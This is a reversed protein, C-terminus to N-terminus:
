PDIAGRYAAIAAAFGAAVKEAARVAPDADDPDFRDCAQAAVHRFKRTRDVAQVLDASLIAPRSQASRGATITQVWLTRIRQARQHPFWRTATSRRIM